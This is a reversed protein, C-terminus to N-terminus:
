LLVFLCILNVLTYSFKDNAKKKENLGLHLLFMSVSQDCIVFTKNSIELLKYSLIM